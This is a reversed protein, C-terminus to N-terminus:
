IGADVKIVWIDRYDSAYVTYIIIPVRIVFVSM